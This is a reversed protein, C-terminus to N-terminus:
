AWARDQALPAAAPQTAVAPQSAAKAAAVVDDAANVGTTQTARFYLAAFAAFVLVTLVAIAVRRPTPQNDLSGVGPIRSILWLLGWLLATFILGAAAGVCLIWVPTLWNVIPDPLQLRLRDFLDALLLPSPLSNM